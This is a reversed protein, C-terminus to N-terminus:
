EEVAPEPDSEPAPAPATVAEDIAQLLVQTEDALAIVDSPIAPAYSARELARMVEALERLPWESRGEVTRLWARLDLSPEAQPVYTQIHERMRHMSVTAVARPEGAAIWRPIPIDGVGVGVETDVGAFAPRRRPKRRLVGWGVSLVLVGTLLLVAPSARFVDRPIPERSTRPPPLSDGEPLVSSVTVLASGGGRTEVRGNPYVLELEPMVVTHEGTEFFAVVYRAVFGGAGSIVEPRVLPEVSPSAPLPGLRLRATPDAVVVEREFVVTDGITPQEPFVSWVQALLVAGVMANM